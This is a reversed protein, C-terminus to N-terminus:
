VHARGIENKETITIIDNISDRNFCNGTPNNPNAIFTIAPKNREIAAVMADTDISFDTKLPVGIYDLGCFTAIMKFMVFAPEVSLLSAGPKACAMAILQIIEDSGNGLLIDLEVPVKMAHRIATKLEPADASPYRNLAAVALREQLGSRLVEPFAYPNEMADLKIFGSAPQVHYASLAAIEARIIDQPNM